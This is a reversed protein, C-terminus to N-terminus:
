VQVVVERERVWKKKEKMGHRCERIQIDSGKFIIIAGDM